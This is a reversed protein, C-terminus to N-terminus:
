SGYKALLELRQKEALQNEDLLNKNRLADLADAEAKRKLALDARAADSERASQATIGDLVAQASGDDADVGNAGLRARVTALSKALAAQRDAEDAQYNTDYQALRGAAEASATQFEAADADRKQQLTNANSQDDARRAAERTAADEANKAADAAAKAEAKQQALAAAADAKQRALDSAEDARISTSVLNGAVPLAATLLSSIDAM